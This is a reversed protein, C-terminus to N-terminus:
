VVSFDLLDDEEAPAPEDETVIAATAKLGVYEIATPTGVCLFINGDSGQLLFGASAELGGRYSFPFHFITGDQLEKKLAAHDEDPTLRYILNINHSLFEDVTAKAELKVPADFTSKVPTIVQGHVDVARLESRKRWHGSPSLYAIATGGKGVISHGNGAFTALECRKGAEDLVETDVYGYLKSRDVKELTFNVSEGHFEVILPKAMLKSWFSLRLM